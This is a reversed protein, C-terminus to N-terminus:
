NKVSSQILTLVYSGKFIKTGIVSDQHRHDATIKIKSGQFTQKAKEQYQEKVIIHSKSAKVHYGFKGGEKELLNWWKKLKRVLRCM